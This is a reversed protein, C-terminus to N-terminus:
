KEGRWAAVSLVVTLIFTGRVFLSYYVIAVKSGAIIRLRSGSMGHCHTQFM